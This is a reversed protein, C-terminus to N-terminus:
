EPKSPWTITTPFGSQSPVDRLAQRYTTWKTSTEDPIDKHQTWDSATLLNNRKIRAITALNTAARVNGFDQAEMWTMYLSNDNDKNVVLISTSTPQANAVNAVPVMTIAGTTPDASIQAGSVVVASNGSYITTNGATIGNRAVFNRQTM